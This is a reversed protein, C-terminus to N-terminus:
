DGNTQETDIETIGAAKDCVQRMWASLALGSRKAAKVYESRRSATGKSPAQGLCVSVYEYGM